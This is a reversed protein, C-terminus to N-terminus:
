DHVARGRELISEAITMHFYADWGIPLRRVILPLCRLALYIVSSGLVIWGEPGVSPRLPVAEAAARRRLADAVCCLSGAVWLPAFLWLRLQATAFLLAFSIAYGLCVHDLLGALTRESCRRYLLWTWPAGFGVLILAILVSKM